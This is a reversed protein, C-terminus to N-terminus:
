NMRRHDESESSGRKIGDMTWRCLSHKIPQQEKTPAVMGITNKKKIKEIEKVRL